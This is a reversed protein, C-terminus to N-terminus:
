IKSSGYDLKKLYTRARKHVVSEYTKWFNQIQINDELERTSEVYKYGNKIMNPLIRAVIMATVGKSRYEENVAVLLSDMIDNHKLAKLIHIFGFPFLRGRNKQLAKAIDPVCIGFGVVKENADLIVSCYQVDIFKFFQNKLDECQGSSLISYGHLASYARNMCEFIGDAYRLIDSHKKLEGHHLNYREAVLDNARLIREDVNDPVKIFREVYNTTPVLGTAILLPEYYPYNYKGYPTAIKDFGAVLVGAVDFELFGYPGEIEEMGKEKAYNEVTQILANVVDQSDIFDIFGFRCIKSKVFDNYRHNIIGAIRGVINNKEDYALWYKAECVEFARNKKPNLTDRDASELQPVYYQNDAYLVNPFHVFKKLEGASNVEKIQITM